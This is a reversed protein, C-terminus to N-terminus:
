KNLTFGIAAWARCARAYFIGSFPTTVLGMTPTETMDFSGRKTSAGTWCWTGLCSVYVWSWEYEAFATGWTHVWLSMSSFQSINANPTVSVLSTSWLDGLSAAYQYATGGSVSAAASIPATADVWGTYTGTLGFLEVGNKINSDILNTDGVVILDGATWKGTDCITQDIDIPTISIGEKVPINQIVKTNGSYWGPPIAYVGNPELTIDGDEMSEIVGETLVGNVWGRYDKKISESTATGTTSDILSNVAITSNNYYGEVLEHTDDPYLTINKHIYPIDGIVLEDNVYCTYGEVIMNESATANSTDIGNSSRVILCEGM